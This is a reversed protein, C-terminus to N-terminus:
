ACLAYTERCPPLLRGRVRMAISRIATSAQSENQLIEQAATFLGIAEDITGGTAALAAAMNQLGGIIDKNNTSATNGVSNIKSMIGDLVNNTEIGFAKMVSVLGTTADEVSLNPSIAAFQAAMKAMETAQERSGYGMRSWDAASQIIDKTTTGLEKAAQNAEKYFSVLDNGTMTTTKRLDVLATDLDTVTKVASKLLNFARFLLTTASVWQLVKQLNNKMIDGLTQMNKGAAKVASSLANYQARWKTLDAQSDIHEANIRLQEFQANLGPETKLASWRRGMDELDTKAKAIGATLKEDKIGSNQTKRLATMSENVRKIAENLEGFIQVQRAEDPREAGNWEAMLADIQALNQTVADSSVGLTSFEAKIAKVREPMIAMESNVNALQLRFNESAKFQNIEAELQDLSDLYAKLGNSDSVANLQARLEAIKKSFNETLQGSRKLSDELSTLDTQEINVQGRVDKERMTTASKQAKQIAIVLREYDAIVGDVEAKSTAGYEGTAAKVADIREKAKNYAETLRRVNEEGTIKSGVGEGNARAQINKLWNEQEALKTIRQDDARKQQAALRAAEDRQEKFNQTIHAAKDM